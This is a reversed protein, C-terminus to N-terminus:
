CSTGFLARPVFDPAASTQNNDPILGRANTALYGITISQYVSCQSEEMSIVGTASLVDIM